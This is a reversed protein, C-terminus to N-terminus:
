VHVCVSVCNFYVQDCVAKHTESVRGANVTVSMSVHKNLVTVEINMHLPCVSVSSHQTPIPFLSFVRPHRLSLTDCASQKLHLKSCWISTDSCPLKRKVGPQPTKLAFSNVTNQSVAGGRGGSAAAPRNGKSSITKRQKKGAYDTGSINCLFGPAM